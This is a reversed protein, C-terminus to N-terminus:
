LSWFEVDRNLMESLPDSGIGLFKSVTLSDSAQRTSCPYLTSKYIVTKKDDSIDTTVEDACCCGIRSPSNSAESKTVNRIFCAPANGSPNKISPPNKFGVQIITNKSIIKDLIIGCKIHNM